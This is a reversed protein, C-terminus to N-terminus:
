SNNNPICYKEHQLSLYIYQFLFTHNPVMKWFGTMYLSILYIDVNHGKNTVIAIGM